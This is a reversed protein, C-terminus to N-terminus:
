PVYGAVCYLLYLCGALMSASGAMSMEGGGIMSLKALM